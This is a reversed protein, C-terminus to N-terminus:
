YCAHDIWAGFESGLAEGRHRPHNLTTICPILPSQSPEPLYCARFIGEFQCWIWWTTSDGVVVGVCFSGEPSTSIAHCGEHAKPCKAHPIAGKWWPCPNGLTGTACIRHFPQRLARQKQQKELMCGVFVVRGKVLIVQHEHVNITTSDYCWKFTIQPKSMNKQPHM